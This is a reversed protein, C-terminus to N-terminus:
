HHNRLQAIGRHLRSEGSLVFGATGSRSQISMAAAQADPTRIVSRVSVANASVRNSSNCVPCTQIGAPYYLSCQKCPLGLLTPNTGGTRATVEPSHPDEILRPIPVMAKRLLLNQFLRQLHRKLTSRSVNLFLAIEKNSCGQALMRLVDCDSSMGENQNPEIM